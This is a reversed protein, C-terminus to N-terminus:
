AKSPVPAEAEEGKTEKSGAGAQLGERAASSFAPNTKWWDLGIEEAKEVSCVILRIQITLLEVDTLFIKIDGTIVIGKDLVRELIDAVSSGQTQRSPRYRESRRTEVQAM